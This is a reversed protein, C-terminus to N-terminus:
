ITSTFTYDFMGCDPGEGCISNNTTLTAGLKKLCDTGILLEQSADKQVLLTVTIEQDKMQLKM